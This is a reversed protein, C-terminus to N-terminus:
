RLVQPGFKIDPITKFSAGQLTSEFSVPLVDTRHIQLESRDFLEERLGLLGYKTDPYKYFILNATNRQIM